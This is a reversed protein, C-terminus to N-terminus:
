AQVLLKFCDVGVLDLMVFVVRNGKHDHIAIANGFLEQETGEAPEKRGANGAM